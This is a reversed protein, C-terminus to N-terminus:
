AGHEEALLAELRDLRSRWAQRVERTWRDVEDLPAVQLRCRRERGTKQTSALGARELVRLHKLTATLSIELPAAIEGVSKDGTLLMEVIRLRTQDGLAGFLGARQSSYQVM